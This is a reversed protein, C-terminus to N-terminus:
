IPFSILCLIGVHNNAHFETVPKVTRRMHVTKFAKNAKKGIKDTLFVSVNVEIIVDKDLFLSPQGFNM